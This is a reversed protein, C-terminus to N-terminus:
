EHAPIAPRARLYAEFSGPALFRLEVHGLLLVAGDALPAPRGPALREGGVFTGASSEADLVHWVRSHGDLQLFAHVRSVSPDDVVVDNNAARGLTVGLGFANSKSTSKEVRYVLPDDSPLNLRIRPNTVWLLEKSTRERPAAEWVLVPVPPTLFAARSEPRELLRNLREGM